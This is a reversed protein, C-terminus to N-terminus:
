NGDVLQISYPPIRSYSPKLPGKERPNLTCMQHLLNIFFAQFVIARHFLATLNHSM